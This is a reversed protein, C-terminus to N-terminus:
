EKDKDQQFGILPRKKTKDKGGKIDIERKLNALREPFIDPNNIVIEDYFQVFMDVNIKMKGINKEIISIDITLNNAKFQKFLQKATTQALAITDSNSFLLMKSGLENWYDSKDANQDKLFTTIPSDETFFNVLIKAFLYAREEPMPPYIPIKIGFRGTRIVADDLQKIFNTAAIIINKQEILKPIEQLLTNVVKQNEANSKTGSDRSLGISEFEDFFIVTPSKAKLENLKEVLNLMAGDVYPSGFISRPVENFPFNAKQAIWQAFNTKGCGPLGYLLIGDPNGVKLHKAIEPDLLQQLHEEIWEKVDDYGLVIEKSVDIEKKEDTPKDVQQKPADIKPAVIPPKTIVEKNDPKPKNRSFELALLYFNTGHIEDLYGWINSNYLHYRSFCSISYKMLFKIWEEKNYRLNYVKTGYEWSRVDNFGNNMPSWNSIIEESEPTMKSSLMFQDNKNKILHDLLCLFIPKLEFKGLRKFHENMGMNLLVFDSKLNFIRNRSPNVLFIDENIVQNSIDFRLLNIFNKANEGLSQHVKQLKDNLENFLLDPFKVKGIYYGNGWANKTTNHNFLTPNKNEMWEHFDHINKGKKGEETFVSLWFLNDVWKPSFGWAMENRLYSVKYGNEEKGWESIQYDRLIDSFIPNVLANLDSISQMFALKDAVQSLLMDFYDSIIEEIWFGYGFMIKTVILTYRNLNLEVNPNLDYRECLSSIPLDIKKADFNGQMFSLENQLEPMSVLYNIDAEIDEKIATLQFELKEISLNREKEIPDILQDRLDRAKEEKEKVYKEKQQKNWQTQIQAHKEFDSSAILFGGVRRQINQNSLVEEDLVIDIAKKELLLLRLKILQTVVFLANEEKNINQPEEKKPQEQQPQEQKVVTKEELGLLNPIKLLEADSLSLNKSQRYKFRNIFNEPCLIDFWIRLASPIQNRDFEIPQHFLVLGSTHEWKAENNELIKAENRKLFEAFAFRYKKVQHLPNKYTSAEVTVNENITWVGNESFSLSGGYNKCELIAFCGNKLVIADISSGNCMVNGLLLVLEQSENYENGLLHELQEFFENEHTTEFKESIFSKFPM